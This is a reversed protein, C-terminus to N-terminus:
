RQLGLRPNGTLVGKIRNSVVQRQEKTLVKRIKLATDLRKDQIQQRLARIGEVKQTIQEDTSNEDAILATIDMLQEKIQQRVPRAAELQADVLGSIKSQQDDTAEILNFFRKEFHNKLAEELDKDILCGTLAKVAYAPEVQAAVVGLVAFAGVALAAPKGAKKLDFKM